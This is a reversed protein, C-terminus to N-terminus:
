IFFIHLVFFTRVFGSHLSEISLYRNLKRMPQMIKKVIGVDPIM